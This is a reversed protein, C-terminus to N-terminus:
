HTAMKQIDKDNYKVLVDNDKNILIKLHLKKLYTLIEENNVMSKKVTFEHKGYIVYVTDDDQWYGIDDLTKIGVQNLTDPNGTRISYIEMMAKLSPDVDPKSIIFVAGLILALGFCLGTIIITIKKM